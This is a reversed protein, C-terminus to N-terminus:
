LRSNELKVGAILYERYSEGTKALKNGSMELIPGTAQRPLLKEEINSGPEVAKM